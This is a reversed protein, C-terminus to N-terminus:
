QTRPAAQGATREALLIRSLQLLFRILVYNPLCVVTFGDYLANWCSIPPNDVM